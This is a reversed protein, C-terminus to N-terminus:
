LLDNGFNLRKKSQISAPRVPLSKSRLFSRALYISQDQFHFINAAAVADVKTQTLVEAMHNWNGAGGCAIVPISIAESVQGLFEIDYGCKMGDRSVSNLFIEGAGLEEAKQIWDLAGKFNADNFNPGEPYLYRQDDHEAYDISVVICQRGFEKSAKTIFTPDILASRNISVKDAGARLRLEIDLLTKIGGGFTIPMRAVKSVGLLLDEFSAYDPAATDGRNTTYSDNKSIDLYILEDSDWDSLRQVAKQANGLKKYESFKKSQVLWGDKHLLIPIVRKKKM